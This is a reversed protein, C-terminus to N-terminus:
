CGEAQQDKGGSGCGAVGHSHIEVQHLVDKKGLSHYRIFHTGKSLRLLYYGNIDTIVGTETDEVYVVAGIIPEGSEAERVRGSLTLDSAGNNGGHQGNIYIVPDAQKGNQESHNSGNNHQLSIEDVTDLDSVANFFDGSLGYVPYDKTIIINGFRDAYYYIDRGEFANELITNLQHQRTTDTIRILRIWDQRYHFRVPYEAEVLRVFETFEIDRFQM